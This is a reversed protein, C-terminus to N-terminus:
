IEWLGDFGAIYAQINPKYGDQELYEALAIKATNLDDKLLDTWNDGKTPLGLAKYAGCDKHAMLIVLPTKHLEISKEVQDLVFQKNEGSGYGVLNMAGGAIELDDTYRLGFKKKFTSLLDSFRNDFCWVICADANYHKKDSKFSIVKKM